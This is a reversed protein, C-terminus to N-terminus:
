TQRRQRKGDGTSSSAEAQGESEYWDWLWAVVAAKAADSSCTAMGRGGAHESHQYSKSKTRQGQYKVDTPLVARWQPSANPPTIHGVHCGPPLDVDEEAMSRVHEPWQTSEEPEKKKEKPKDERKDTKEADKKRKRDAAEQDEEPKRHLLESLLAAECVKGLMGDEVEQTKDPKSAARKMGALIEAIKDQSYELTKLLLEVKAAKSMAGPKYIKLEKM